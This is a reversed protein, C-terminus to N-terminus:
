SRHEPHHSHAVRSLGPQVERFRCSPDPHFKSTLIPREFGDPRFNTEPATLQIAVDVPILKRVHLVRKEDGVRDTEVGAEPEHLRCRREFQRTRRRAPTSALSSARQRLAITPAASDGGRELSLTGASQQQAVSRSDLSFRRAPHVRTAHVSSCCSACALNATLGLPNIVRRSAASYRPYSSRENSRYTCFDSAHTRVPRSSFVVFSSSSRHCRAFISSPRVRIEGVAPDRREVDADVADPEARGEPDRVVRGGCAASIDSSNFLRGRFLVRLEDGTSGDVGGWARADQRREREFLEAPEPEDIGLLEPRSPDLRADDLEAVHGRPRGLIRAEVLIPARRELADGVVGPGRLVGGVSERAREAVRERLLERVQEPEELPGNTFTVERAHGRARLQRPRRDACAGPRLAFLGHADGVLLRDRDAVRRGLPGDASTAADSRASRDRRLREADAVDEPERVLEREPRALRLLDLDRAVPLATLLVDEHRAVHVLARELPADREREDRQLDELAAGGVLAQDEAAVIEAVM